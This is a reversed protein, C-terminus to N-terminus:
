LKKLLLPAPFHILKEASKQKIQALVNTPPLQKLGANSALLFLVYFQHDKTSELFTTISDQEM